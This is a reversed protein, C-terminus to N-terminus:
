VVDSVQGWIREWNPKQKSKRKFFTFFNAVIELRGQGRNSEFGRIRYPNLGSNEKMGHGRCAGGGVVRRFGRFGNGDERFFGDRGM